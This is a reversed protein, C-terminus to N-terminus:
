IEEYLRITPQTFEPYQAPSVLSLIATKAVNRKAAPYLFFAVEASIRDWRLDADTPAEARVTIELEKSCLYFVGDKSLAHFKIM